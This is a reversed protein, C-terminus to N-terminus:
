RSIEDPKMANLLESVAKNLDAFGQKQIPAALSPKRDELAKASRGLADSAENLRWVIKPDIQMQQKGLEWLKILLAPGIGAALSLENAALSQM